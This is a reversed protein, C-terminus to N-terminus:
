IKCPMVVTTRDGDVVKVPDLPGNIEVAITESTLCDLYDLIYTANLGISFPVAGRPTGMFPAVSEGTDPNNAKVTLGGGNVPDYDIKVGAFRNSAMLSASKIASTFSARNVDVTNEGAERPIVQEYPPFQADILKVSITAMSMTFTAHSKTFSGIVNEGAFLKAVKRFVEIGHRPVINEGEVSPMGAQLHLRHGDTAVVKDAAFNMGNLHYRTEDRSVAPLIFDLVGLLKDAQYYIPDGEEATHVCPYDKAPMTMLKMTAGGANVTLYRDVEEITV